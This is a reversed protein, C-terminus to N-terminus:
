VWAGAMSPNMRDEKRRSVRSRMGMSLWLRSGRRPRSSSDMRSRLTNSPSSPRSSRFMPSTPRRHIPIARSKSPAGRLLLTTSGRPLLTSRRSRRGRGRGWRCRHHRMATAMAASATAWGLRKHTSLTDSGVAMPTPTTQLSIIRTSLPHPRHLDVTDTRSPPISPNDATRIMTSNRPHYHHHAISTRTRTIGM